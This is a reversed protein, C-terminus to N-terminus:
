KLSRPDTVGCVRQIIQPGIVAERLVVGAIAGAIGLVVAVIITVFGGVMLYVFAGLMIGLFFGAGGLFALGPNSCFFRDMETAKKGHRKYYDPISERTDSWEFDELSYHGDCASCYTFEMAALPDALAAFEPGSIETQTRCTQHTYTRSEPANM